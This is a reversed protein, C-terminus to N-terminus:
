GSLKRSSWRCGGDLAARARRHGGGQGPGPDAGSWVASRPVRSTETASSSLTSCAELGCRPPASKKMPRTPNDPSSSVSRPCEQLHCFTPGICSGTTVEAFAQAPSNGAESAERGRLLPPSILRSLRAASTPAAESYLGQLCLLQKGPTSKAQLTRSCRSVDSPFVASSSRGSPLWHGDWLGLPLSWSREPCLRAQLSPPSPPRESEEKEKERPIFFCGRRAGM